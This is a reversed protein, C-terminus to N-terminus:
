KQKANFSARWEKIEKSKEKIEESEKLLKDFNESIMNRTFDKLQQKLQTFDETQKKRHGQTSGTAKKRAESQTAYEEQKRKGAEAMDEAVKKLADTRKALVEWVEDEQTKFKRPTTNSNTIRNCTSDM